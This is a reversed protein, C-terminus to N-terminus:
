LLKDDEPLIPRFRHLVQLYELITHLAYIVLTDGIETAFYDNTTDILFDTSTCMSVDHLFLHSM